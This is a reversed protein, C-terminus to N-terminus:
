NIFIWWADASQLTPSRKCTIQWLGISFQTKEHVPTRSSVGWLFSVLASSLRSELFAFSSFNIAQMVNNHSM